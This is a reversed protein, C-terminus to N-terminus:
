LWINEVSPRKRSASHNRRDETKRSEICETFLVLVVLILVCIVNILQFNFAYEPM